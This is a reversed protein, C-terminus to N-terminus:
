ARRYIRRGDPACYHIHQRDSKLSITEGAPAGGWLQSARRDLYDEICVVISRAPLRLPRGSM